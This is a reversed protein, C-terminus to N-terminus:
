PRPESGACGARFRRTSRNAHSAAGVVAKALAEYDRENQDDYAVSFGLVSTGFSDGKGLYSAIAIRYGGGPTRLALATACSRVTAIRVPSVQSRGSSNVAADSSSSPTV